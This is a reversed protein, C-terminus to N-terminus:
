HGQYRLNIRIRPEPQSQGMIWALLSIRKKVYQRSLFVLTTPDALPVYIGARSQNLLSAKM